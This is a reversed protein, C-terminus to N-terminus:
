WKIKEEISNELKEIVEELEEKVINDAEEEITEVESPKDNFFMLYKGLLMAAVTGLVVAYAVFDSSPLTREM